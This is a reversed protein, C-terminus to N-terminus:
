SPLEGSVQKLADLLATHSRDDSIVVEGLPGVIICRGALEGAKPHRSVSLTGNRFDFVTCHAFLRRIRVIVSTLYDLALGSLVVTYAIAGIEAVLAGERSIVDVVQYSDDAESTLCQEFLLAEEATLNSAVINVTNNV